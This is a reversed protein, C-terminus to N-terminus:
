CRCGGVGGAIIDFFSNTMLWISEYYNFYINDPIEAGSVIIYLKLIELAQCKIKLYTLILSKIHSDILWYIFAKNIITCKVTNSYLRSWNM